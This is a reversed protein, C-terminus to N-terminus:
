PLSISVARIFNRGYPTFYTHEDLEPDSTPLEVAYQQFRVVQKKSPKLESSTNLIGLRMLDQIMLDLRAEKDVAELQDATLTYNQNRRLSWHPLSDLFDPEFAEAMLKYDFTENGSRTEVDTPRPALVATWLRDLFRAEDATLQSLTLGFSPLTNRPASVSSELLAAWRAQLDDDSQVSAMPILPLVKRIDQDTLPPKDKRSEGWKTFIRGLNDNQYFHYIGALDGLALGLKEALPTVLKKGAETMSATVIAAVTAVVQQEDM